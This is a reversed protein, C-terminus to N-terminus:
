PKLIKSLFRISIDPSSRVIANIIIKNLAPRPILLLSSFFTPGSATFNEQIGPSISPNVTVNTEIFSSPRENTSPPISPKMIAATDGATTTGKIINRESDTIGHFSSFKRLSDNLMNYYSSRAKISNFMDESGVGQHSPKIIVPKRKSSM